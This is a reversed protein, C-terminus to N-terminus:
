GRVRVIADRVPSEAAGERVSQAPGKARARAHRLRWLVGIATAVVFEGNGVGGDFTVHDIRLYALADWRPCRADDGKWSCGEMLARVAAPM